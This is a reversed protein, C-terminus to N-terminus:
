RVDLSLRFWDIERLVAASLLGQMWFEEFVGAEVWEQVRRHASSGSCNGTGNLANRKWNLPYRKRFCCAHNWKGGCNTHSVGQIATSEGGFLQWKRGTATCPM